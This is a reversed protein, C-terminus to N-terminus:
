DITIYLVIDETVERKCSRQPFSSRVVSLTRLPRSLCQKSVFCSLRQAFRSSSTHTRHFSSNVFSSVKDELESFDIATLHVCLTVCHKRQRRFNSAFLGLSTCFREQVYGFSHSLLQFWPLVDSRCIAGRRQLFCSTKGGEGFFTHGLVIHCQQAFQHLISHFFFFLVTEYQCGTVLHCPPPLNPLHRPLVASVSPGRTLWQVHCSRAGYHAIRASSSCPAQSPVREELELRVYAFLTLHILLDIAINGSVKTSSTFATSLGFFTVILKQAATSFM